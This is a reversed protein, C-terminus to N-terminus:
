GRAIKIAQRAAGGVSMGVDFWDHYPCDPLDNSDMGTKKELLLNVKAMWEKFKNDPSSTTLIEM